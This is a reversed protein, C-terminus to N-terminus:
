HIPKLHSAPFYFKIFQIIPFMESNLTTKIEEHIDNQDTVSTRLNRFKVVNEINFWQTRYFFLM